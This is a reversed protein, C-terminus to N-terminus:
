LKFYLKISWLFTGLLLMLPLKYKELLSEAEVSVDLQPTPIALTDCIEDLERVLRENM